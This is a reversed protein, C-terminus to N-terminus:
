TVDRRRFLVWTVAVLAALLVAWYGLGHALSITKTAFGATEDFPSSSGTIVQYSAGNSLIAELNLSPSWPLLYQAWRTMFALASLVYTVFVGGLLVGISAGTSGTLLGVTFGVIGLIAMVLVGRAAMAALDGFGTLPQGHIGALAAASGLTLLGVLAGVLVSFAAVVILKSGVVVNRDPIFTLWNALSGSSAEAGIFSALAIFLVFGGLYVGFSIAPTVAETFSSPAVGWEAPDPKPTACEDATGGSETCETEWEEHNAEWDKLYEDYDRQAEAVQAASPPTLMSNVLVQFLGIGLLLGLLAVVILRRSLLRRTEARLANIM